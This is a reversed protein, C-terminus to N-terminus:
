KIYYFSEAPEPGHNDAVGPVGAVMISDITAPAKPRLVEAMGPVRAMIM